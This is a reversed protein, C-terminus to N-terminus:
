ELILSDLGKTKLKDLIEERKNILTKYKLELEIYEPPEKNNKINTKEFFLDCFYFLSFTLPLFMIGIIKTIPVSQGYFFSEVSIYSYVIESLMFIGCLAIAIKLAFNKGQNWLNILSNLASSILFVPASGVFAAIIFMIWHDNIDRFMSPQIIDLSLFIGIGIFLFIPSMSILKITKKM